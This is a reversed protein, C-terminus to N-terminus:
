RELARTELVTAWPQAVVITVTVREPNVSVSVPKVSISVANVSPDTVLGAVVSICGLVVRVTGASVIVSSTMGGAKERTSGATRSGRISKSGCSVLAGEAATLANTGIM